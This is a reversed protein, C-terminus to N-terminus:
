SCLCDVQFVITFMCSSTGPEIQSCAFQWGIELSIADDSHVCHRCCRCWKQLAISVSIKHLGYLRLLTVSAETSSVPALWRSRILTRQKAFVTSENFSTLGLNGHATFLDQFCWVVTCCKYDWFSLYRLNQVAQESCSSSGTCGHARAKLSQLVIEYLMYQKVDRLDWKWADVQGQDLSWIFMRLQLWTVTCRSWCRLTCIGYWCDNYYLSDRLGHLRGACRITESLM